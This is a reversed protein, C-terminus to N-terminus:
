DIHRAIIGSVHFINNIRNFFSWNAPTLERSFQSTREGVWETFPKRSSLIIWVSKDWSQHTIRLSVKGKSREVEHLLVDMFHSPTRGDIKTITLPAPHEKLYQNLIGPHM